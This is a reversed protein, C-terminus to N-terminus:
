LIESRFSNSSVPRNANKNEDNASLMVAVRTEMAKTNDSLRSTAFFSRNAATVTKATLEPPTAIIVPSTVVKIIKRSPFASIVLRNSRAPGAINATPTSIKNIIFGSDFMTTILLFLWSKCATSMVMAKTKKLVIKVVIANLTAKSIGGTSVKRVPNDTINKTAFNMPSSVSFSGMM